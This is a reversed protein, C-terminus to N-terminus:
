KKKFFRGFGKKPKPSILAPIIMDCNLRVMAIPATIGMIVVLYGEGSSRIYIRRQSYVIDLDHIPISNQIIEFLVVNFSEDRALGSDFSEFQVQGQLDFLLVGEVGKIELLDKFKEKM